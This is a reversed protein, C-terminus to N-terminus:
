YRTQMIVFRPGFEVNVFYADCFFRQKARTPQFIDPNATVVAQLHSPTPCSAPANCFTVLDVDRLDRKEIREIAELYSGSLWQFGSLFGLQALRKPYDLLGKFITVRISSTCFIKAIESLTCVYPSM